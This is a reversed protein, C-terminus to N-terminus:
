EAVRWVGGDRSNSPRLDDSQGWRYGLMYGRATRAIPEVAIAPGCPDRLIRAKERGARTM